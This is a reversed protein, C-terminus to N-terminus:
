KCTARADVKGSPGRVQLACSTSRADMRRWWTIEGGAGYTCVLWRQDGAAFGFKADWGGKAERREGALEGQGGIEGTFMGAGSLAARTVFGGNSRQRQAGDIPVMEAPYLKPCEAVEAYAPAALALLLLARRM